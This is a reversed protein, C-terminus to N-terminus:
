LLSEDSIRYWNKTYGSESFVYRLSLEGGEKMAAYAQIPPLLPATGEIKRYSAIRLDAAALTTGFYELCAFYGNELEVPVGDAHIGFLLVFRGTQEDTYSDILYAEANGLYLGVAKQCIGAADAFVNAKDAGTPTTVVGTDASSAYFRITGDTSVRLTDFDEVYVTVTDTEPYAKTTYVNFGLNELVNTIIRNSNGASNGLINEEILTSTLQPLTTVCSDAYKLTKYVFDSGDDSYGLLIQYLHSARADTSYRLYKGSEDQVYLTLTDDIGASLMLYRISPFEVHTGTGILALVDLPIYGEFDYLVMNNNLAARWESQSVELVERATSLAENMSVRTREFLMTVDESHHLTCFGSESRVAARVPTLLTVVSNIEEYETYLPKDSSNNDVIAGLNVNPGIALLWTRGTLLVASVALMVIFITKIIERIKNM